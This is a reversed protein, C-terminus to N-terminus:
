GCIHCYSRRCATTARDIHNPQPSFGRIEKQKEEQKVKGHLLPLRQFGQHSFAAFRESVSNCLYDSSQLLLSWQFGQYDSGFRKWGPSSPLSKSRFTPLWKRLVELRHIAAAIKVIFEERETCISRKSMSNLLQM